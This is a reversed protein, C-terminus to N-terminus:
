EIHPYPGIPSEFDFDYVPVGLTLLFQQVFKTEQFHGCTACRFSSKLLERPELLHSFLAWKPTMATGDM